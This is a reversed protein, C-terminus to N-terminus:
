ALTLFSPHGTPSPWKRGFGFPEEPGLKEPELTTPGSNFMKTFFIGQFPGWPLEGMSPRPGGDGGGKQVGCSPQWRWDLHTSRHEAWGGATSRWGRSRHAATWPVECRGTVAGTQVKSAASRVDRAGTGAFGSRFFRRDAPQGTALVGVPGYVLARGAGQARGAAGQGGTGRGFRLPRLRGWCRAQIAERVTLIRRIRIKPM